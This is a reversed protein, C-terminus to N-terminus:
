KVGKGNDETSIVTVGDICGLEKEKTWCSGEMIFMETQGNTLEKAMNKEKTFIVKMFNGMKFRFREKVM